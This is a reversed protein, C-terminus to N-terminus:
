SVRNVGRREGRRERVQRGFAAREEAFNKESESHREAMENVKKQAESLSAKLERKDELHHQCTMQVDAITAKLTEIELELERRREDLQTRQWEVDDLNTKANNRTVQLLLFLSVKVGSSSAKGSPTSDVSFLSYDPTCILRSPSLSLDEKKIGNALLEVRSFLVRVM